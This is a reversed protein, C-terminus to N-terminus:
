YDCFKAILIIRVRRGPRRGPPTKLGAGTDLRWTGTVGYLKVGDALAAETQVVGLLANGLRVPM